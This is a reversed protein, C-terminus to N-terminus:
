SFNLRYLKHIMHVLSHGHGECRWKKCQFAPLHEELLSAMIGYSVIDHLASIFIVTCVLDMYCQNLDHKRSQESIYYSDGQQYALGGGGM